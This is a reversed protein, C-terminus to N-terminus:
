QVKAVENLARGLTDDEASVAKQAAEYARMATIMAVMEEVVTVNSQELHGAVLAPRAVDRVGAGEVRLLRSGEKVLTAGPALSVIRLGGAVVGGVRVDGVGDIFASGGGAFTSEGGAVAIPRGDRGVVPFGGTDTLTGDPSVAFEGARTLRDGQPTRVVFFQNGRAAVDLPSGTARLPGQSRDMVIEDPAAGVGLTGLNQLPPEDEFDAAHDGVRTLAGLRFSEFTAVDGKFGPTNANALNNAIVALSTEQILMASAATYVGRLM